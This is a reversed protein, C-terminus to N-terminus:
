AIEPGILSESTRENVIREGEPGNIRYQLVGNQDPPMLRVIEYVGSLRSPSQASSRVLQGIKLVHSM